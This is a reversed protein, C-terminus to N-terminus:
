RYSVGLAVAWGPTSFLLFMSFTVLAAQAALTYSQSVQHESCVRALRRCFYLVAALCATTVFVLKVLLMATGFSTGFLNGIHTYAIVFSIVYCAVLPTLVQYVIKSGLRSESM